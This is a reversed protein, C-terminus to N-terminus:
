SCQASHPICAATFNSVSFIVDASAGMAAALAIITTSFQM